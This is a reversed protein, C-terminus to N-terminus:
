RGFKWAAGRKNLWKSAQRRTPQIGAAECAKIFQPDASKLFRVVRFENDTHKKFNIKTGNIIM